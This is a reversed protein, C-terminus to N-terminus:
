KKSVERVYSIFYRFTEYPVDPPVTHDLMPIYGGHKLMFQVKLDVEEKIAEKSDALLKKNLGGIIVFSS